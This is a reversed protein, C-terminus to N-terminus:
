NTRALAHKLAGGTVLHEILEHLSNFPPLPTM